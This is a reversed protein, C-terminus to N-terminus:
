REKTFFSRSPKPSTNSSGSTRKKRDSARTTVWRPRQRKLRQNVTIAKTTAAMRVGPGSTM